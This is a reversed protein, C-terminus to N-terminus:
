VIMTNGDIKSVKVEMWCAQGVLVRERRAIVRPNKRAGPQVNGEDDYQGGAAWAQLRKGVTQIWERM